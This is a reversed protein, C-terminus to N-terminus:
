KFAEPASQRLLYACSREVRTIREAATGTGNKMAIYVARIQELTAADALQRQYEAQEEATKAIVRYAFTRIFAIDDDTSFRELKQTAVEFSPQTDNVVRKLQILPDPPQITEDINFPTRSERVLVRTNKDLIYFM